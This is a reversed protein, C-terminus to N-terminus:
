RRSFKDINADSQLFVQQLQAAFAVAQDVQLALVDGEGRHPIALALRQEPAGAGVDGHQQPFHLLGASGGGHQGPPESNM